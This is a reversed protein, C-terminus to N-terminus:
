LRTRRKAKVPGNGLRVRRKSEQEKPATPLATGYQKEYLKKYVTMNKGALIWLGNTCKKNKGNCPHIYEHECVKCMKIKALVDKLSKVESM